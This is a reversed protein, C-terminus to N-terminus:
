FNASLGVTLTVDEFKSRSKDYNLSPYVNNQLSLFPKISKERLEHRKSFATEFRAYGLDQSTSTLYSYNTSEPELENRSQDEEQMGDDKQYNVNSAKQSRYYIGVGILIVGLAVIAVLVGSDVFGPLEDSKDVYKANAELPIATILFVSVIVLILRRRLDSFLM